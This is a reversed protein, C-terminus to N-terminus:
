GPNTTPFNATGKQKTTVLSDLYEALDNLFVVHAARISDHLRTCRMKIHGSSIEQLLYRDTKIHAFYRERVATLTPCPTNWERRLQELTTTM